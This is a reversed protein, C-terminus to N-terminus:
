RVNKASKKFYKYLIFSLMLIFAGNVLHLSTLIMMTQEFNGENRMDVFVSACVGLLIQVLIGFILSFSIFRFVKEKYSLLLVALLLAVASLILGLLMHTLLIHNTLTGLEKYVIEGNIEKAVKTTHRFLAGLLLQTFLGMTLIMTLKKHLPQFTVKIKFLKKEFFFYAIYCVLLQAVIGHIVSTWWPTKILVGIGGIVGQFIIAILIFFFVKLKEKRMCSFILLLIALYGEIWALIRHSHEWFKNHDNIWMELSPFLFGGSQPWDSFAMGSRSSVVVSGFFILFFTNILLLLHAKSFFSSQKEKSFGKFLFSVIFLTAVAIALYTSDSM